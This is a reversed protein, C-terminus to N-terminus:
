SRPLRVRFRPLTVYEIGFFLVTLAIGFLYYLQLGIGTGLLCTFVFVDAHALGTFAIPGALRGLRHLLPFSAYLLMAVANGIGLPWRLTSDFLVVLTYVGHTAAISWTVLNLARLRRALREPYRETGFVISPLLRM